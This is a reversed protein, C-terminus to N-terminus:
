QEGGYRSMIDDNLKVFLNYNIRVKKEDRLSGLYSGLFENEKQGLLTQRETDKVKDFDAKAVDKRELVRFVAYGEDVDVPASTTKLPASFILKDIDANEGVMSLYQERKHSEVTKYDLKYKSAEANWDDKMKALAAKLDALAQDKKMRAEIDAVVRDRVEELKGPREPEVKQLQVLGVGTYTFLPASIEKDKLGFLAESISGSSDIDGLPTGKALPGTSTAKLGDKQAALDLSKDKLAQKNIRQMRDAIAQRAKQDELIGKITASVEALAKAAAPTKLTVKFIAAGTDTEVLDSVQGQALRGVAETEKASLSRWDTLGWDGGTKAKDDKSFSKALEAFDGGAKAKELVGRAQALVAERDKATFPMWIRSVKVQEPEQFQAANDKYYKEIEAPTVTVTKKADETKLFVYEGTRKEPIRYAAPDKAFAAQIEAETPKTALTVKSTPAVLYEIKATENQKRYSDWVEEDTVTIGATLVRVVKNLIVDQKLGEEFEGLAIHNYELLRKYDEFGMFKGERQFAPYAMIRARVEADTARLGMDAAIQLLLKQQIIQQLVQQPIQLQQILGSTLGSYQKKMADLRTRLAQFYETGSVKERGVSALTNAQSGEGLRGGGGWIAWISVIFTLVVIWLIPRLSKVNKRMTKLM